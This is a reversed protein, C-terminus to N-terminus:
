SIMPIWILIKIKGNEQSQFQINNDCARILLFKIYIHIIRIMLCQNNVINFLLSTVYDYTYPKQCGRCCRLSWAKDDVCGCSFLAFLIYLLLLLYYCFLSFPLLPACLSNTLGTWPMLLGSRGTPILLDGFKV